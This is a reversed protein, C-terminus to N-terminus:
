LNFEPNIKVDFQNNIYNILRQKNQQKIEHFSNRFKVQSSFKELKTLQDLDNTWQKGIKDTILASLAGPNCKKLWRRPTIGNTKNNFKEPSYDYFDKVLGHKLLETHLAAVGNVSHSGVIALYAMRVMKEGGEQIISLAGLKNNDGPYHNAVQRLHHYNIEYIIEM